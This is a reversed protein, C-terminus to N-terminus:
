LKRESALDLDLCLLFSPKGMLSFFFFFKERLVNREHGEFRRMWGCRLM